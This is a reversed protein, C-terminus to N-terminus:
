GQDADGFTVLVQGEQVMEGAACAITAIITDAPAALRFVTKMAELVVLVQGRTAADGPAALVQTVMGPIPAVLRDGADEEEDGAHLPDPLTFRWTMGGDRLTVIHQHMVGSVTRWDGDLCVRLRVPDLPEAHALITGIRWAPGDRVVQVPYVADGDHFDMVRAPTMNVWWQDRADWPDAAPATQEAALVTLAAMALVDPPPKGQAALLTDGERAIFGTDIGGAAFAPHAIIRDLLDLNVTVGAVITDAMTLRLRRLAAERTPGHCILKALMADYHVSVTDGTRFGTDVRVGNGQPPTQFLALTGISPAFDRSPDEAYLRAEIAHGSIFIDSQAAPLPEGAAVLLQWEVLDFGTIMETVPHEVQLRTNMELFYFGDDDAVFEVTGAGVYGVAKAAAVAAAGMRARQADSLGPAPAEEIVKQHRRQASCDREFLHLANGHTDAFVQVEIHRPRQLYREILVRDDGFASAAEQRASELAASFATAATVVRMGRGGGGSVAKIVVPFGIRAAQDALFDAEQRDGHYGPLLPVDSQAMLAKAAAKSGMARMAVAPPGVFIIGAQACAEAFAPNESLFGYGPHIAEAGARKATDIIRAINLYSDRAPTPGIPYARDASQVHLANADAESFVAITEIGMRHATRAIRCAIEGRNAILLSRFM